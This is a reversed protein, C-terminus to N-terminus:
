KVRHQVPISIASYRVRYMIRGREQRNERVERQVDRAASRADACCSSLLVFEGGEEDSENEIDQNSKLQNM